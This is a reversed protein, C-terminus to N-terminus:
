VWGLPCTSNPDDTKCIRSQTASLSTRQGHDHSLLHPAPIHLGTDGELGRVRVGSSYAASPLMWTINLWGREMFQNPSPVLTPGFDWLPAKKKALVCVQVSPGQLHISLSWPGM